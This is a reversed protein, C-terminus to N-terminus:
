VNKNREEITTAHKNLDTLFQYASKTNQTKWNERQKNLWELLKANPAKDLVAEIRKIIRSFEEEQSTVPPIRRVRRYQDACIEYESYAKRLAERQASKMDNGIDVINELTRATNKAFTVRHADVGTRREGTLIDTVVARAVIVGAKLATELNPFEIDEQRLPHHKNMLELMYAFNPYQYGDERTKLEENPTEIEQVAKLREFLPTLVTPSVLAIKDESSQRLILSNQKEDSM